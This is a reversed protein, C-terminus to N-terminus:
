ILILPPELLCPSLARVPDAAVDVLLICHQCSDPAPIILASGTHSLQLISARTPARRHKCATARAAVDMEHRDNVGRAGEEPYVTFFPDEYAEALIRFSFDLLNLRTFPIPCYFVGAAGRALLREKGAVFESHISRNRKNSLIQNISCVTPPPSCLMCGQEPSYM